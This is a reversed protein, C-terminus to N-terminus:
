NLVFISNAFWNSLINEKFDEFMKSIVDIM